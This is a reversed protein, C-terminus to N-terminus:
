INMNVRHEIFNLSDITSLDLGNESILKLLENFSVHVDNTITLNGQEEYAEPLYIFFSDENRFAGIETDGSSIKHDLHFIYDFMPNTKHNAFGISYEPIDQTNEYGQLWGVLNHYTFFDISEGVKIVYWDESQALWFSHTEFEENGSLEGFETIMDILYKDTTNKTLILRTYDCSQINYLNGSYLSLDESQLPTTSNNDAVVEPMGYKDTGIGIQDGEKLRKYLDEEVEYRYLGNNVRATIFWRGVPKMRQGFLKPFLDGLIPIHLSGSGAEYDTIAEKEVVIGTEM